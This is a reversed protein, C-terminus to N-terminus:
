CKPASKVCAWFLYENVCKLRPCCNRTLYKGLSVFTGSRQLPEFGCGKFLSYFGWVSLWPVCIYLTSTSLMYMIISNSTCTIHDVNKICKWVRTCQVHCTIMHDWATSFRVTSDFIELPWSCLWVHLHVMIFTSNSLWSIFYELSCKYNYIPVKKM